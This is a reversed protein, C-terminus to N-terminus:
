LPTKGTGGTTLNGIAVTPRPLRHSAFVGADYLANRAVMVTAYFPEILLLGGRILSARISRDEGSLVRLAWRERAVAMPGCRLDFHRRSRLRDPRAAHPRPRIPRDSRRSECCRRRRHDRVM